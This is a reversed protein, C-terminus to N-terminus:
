TVASWNRNSSAFTAVIQPLWKALSFSRLWKTRILQPRVLEMRLWAPIRM